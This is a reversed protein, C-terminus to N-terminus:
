SRAVPVSSHGGEKLTAAQRSVALCSPKTFVPCGKLYLRLAQWHIAGIVKATMFPYRALASHLSRSSWSDRRLSLTADFFCKGEDLTQMHAVLDEGPPTFLFTYDLEMKMFPSVHMTKPLRYQLATATRHQIAPHLWYNRTEGFTSNVEALITEVQGSEDCCYFFSVPNFNYGFYRLNTLLYIPGRPLNVAAVAANARLRERLSISPDGFHDSEHFSALNWRNYASFPSISMLEPIRDIDLFAMFVDYSFEHGTPQFRRHRLKGTYIAPHM